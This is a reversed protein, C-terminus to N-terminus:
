RAVYARHVFGGSAKRTELFLASDADRTERTLSGDIKTLNTNGAEARVLFARVDEVSPAMAPSADAAKGTKDAIAETASAEILKAWMKRFLGNSPYVDGSNVQGNVAFVYGIIDSEAEGAPKLKAIFAARNEDLKKNELSLQLSSASQGSAVPAGVNASLKAQAEAVSQWVGSQRSGTDSYDGGRGALDIRGRAVGTVGGTVGVNDNTPPTAAAASATRPKAPALMALKADRSPVAKDASAFQKVDENGRASWRGQEVCFAGIPMRGSKPPVLFSVTLVRDQQGGKVIDGAQVFVEAKGTNEITLENVKGTETVKVTGAALAEKLTLPVPGPASTGHLFYVALNEHVFPGTIRPPDAARVPIALGAALPVAIAALIARAQWKM